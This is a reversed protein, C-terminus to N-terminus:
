LFYENQAWDTDTISIFYFDPSLGTDTIFRKRVLNGSIQRQLSIIEEPLVIRYRCNSIILPCSECSIFVSREEEFKKPCGRSIGAFIGPYGALFNPKGPNRLVYRVKQGGAGERKTCWMAAVCIEAICLASKKCRM